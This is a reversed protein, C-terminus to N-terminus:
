PKPVICGGNCFFQSLTEPTPLQRNESEREFKRGAEFARMFQDLTDPGWWRDCKDCFYDGYEYRLKGLELCNPCRSSEQFTM